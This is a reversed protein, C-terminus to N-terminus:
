AKTQEQQITATLKFSMSYSVTYATSGVTVSTTTQAAALGIATDAEDNSSDLAWAWTLTYVIDCTTNADIYGTETGLRTKMDALSLNAANDIAVPTDDVTKTLTWKIPKHENASIDTENTMGLTFKALVEATGSITITLSGTTGPAVVVNAAKVAISPASAVEAKTALKDSNAEAYQNSVFDTASVSLGLGWKAATATLTESEHTTVYRSYTITGMAAVLAVMLVVAVVMFLKKNKTKNM